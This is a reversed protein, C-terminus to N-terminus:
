ELPLKAADQALWLAAAAWFEGRLIGARIDPNKPLIKGV